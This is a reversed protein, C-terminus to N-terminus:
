AVRASKKKSRAVAEDEAALGVSLLRRVVASVTNQERLAIKELRRFTSTSLRTGIYRGIIAPM